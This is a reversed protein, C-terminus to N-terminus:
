STSSQSWADTPGPNAQDGSGRHLINQGRKCLSLITDPVCPNLFQESLLHNPADGLGQTETEENNSSPSHLHPPNVDSSHSRPCPRAGPLHGM